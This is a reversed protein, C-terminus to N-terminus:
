YVEQKALQKKLKDEISKSKRYLDLSEMIAPKYKIDADEYENIMYNLYRICWEEGYLSEMEKIKSQLTKHNIVPITYKKLYEYYLKSVMSPVQKRTNTRLEKNEIRTLTNGRQQGTTAGNNVSLTSSTQYEKWNCIYITTYKTNSSLTAMKAKELRKLASYTTNANLSCLDALQFRGGSWKGTKQDCNLLLVEFVYWATRDHRFVENTMVQRHLKVWGNNM